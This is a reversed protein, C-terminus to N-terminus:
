IHVDVAALYYDDPIRDMIAKAQDLWLHREKEDSVCGFWGMKGKEIWEGDVLFAFPTISGFAAKQCHEERTVLFVDIESWARLNWLIEEPSEPNGTPREGERVKWQLVIPQNHYAERAEDIDLKEEGKVREQFSEWPIYPPLTAILPDLISRALDWSIGAKNSADAMTGEFDIDRKLAIDAWGPPYVPPAENPMCYPIDGRFAVRPTTQGLAGLDVADAAVEVPQPAEQTPFPETWDAPESTVTVGEKVKFFGVWRGGVSFWDWRSNPNYTTLPEGNENKHDHGECREAHYQEPTQSLLQAKYPEAKTLWEVNRAEPKKRMEAEINETVTQISEQQQKASDELTFDIYPAVELNEDFPALLSSLTSGQRFAVITLSHSM